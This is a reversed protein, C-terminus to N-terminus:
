LDRVCRVYYGNTRGAEATSFGVVSANSSSSERMVYARQDVMNNRHTSSAYMWDGNGFSIVQLSRILMLERQTPLRWSGAPADTERYAQCVKVMSAYAYRDTYTIETVGPSSSRSCNGKAIQFRPSVRNSSTEVGHSRGAEYMILSNTKTLLGQMPIGGGAEDHSVIIKATTGDSRTMEEVYPYKVGSQAHAATTCALVGIYLMFQKIINTKM